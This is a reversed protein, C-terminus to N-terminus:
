DEPKYLPENEKNKNEEYAYNYDELENAIKKRKTFIKRGILIGIILSIFIIILIIILILLNKSILNQKIINDKINKNNYFYIQKKDANFITLYKKLFIRGFTFKKDEGFRKFIKLFYKNDKYYFLEENKFSINFNLKYKSFIINPFNDIDKKGFKNSDCYIITIILDVIEIKCINNKIYNILCNYVYNFYFSGFEIGEIDPSIGVNIYENNEWSNFSSKNKYELIFSDLVIEFYTSKSYFTILNQEKYINKLYNHPMDGFIFIGEENSSYLFVWSQESTKLIKHLQSIFATSEKFISSYIDIGVDGCLSTNLCKYNDFLFSIYNYTTLNINSYIKIKEKVQCSLSNNNIIETSTKFNYNCFLYENKIQNLKLSNTQTNIITNLIQNKGNIENKIEMELYLKAFIFSKFDKPIFDNKQISTTPYYLKFKLIAINSFNTINEKLLINISLVEYIIIFIFLVM